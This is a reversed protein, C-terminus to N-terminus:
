RMSEETFRRLLNVAKKLEYKIGDAGRAIVVVFYVGDKVPQGNYTGDWGCEECDIEDLGWTYLEQGWRNYVSARMSIISKVDYVNLYDNIGDGNPSFANPVKISSEGISIKFPDFEYEYLIDPNSTNTYTVKLAVSFSGAKLFDYEVSEDYRTLFVEQNDDNTFTWMCVASYGEVDEANASFLVTLPAEGVYEEGASLINDEGERDTYEATPAPEVPEIETQGMISLPTFLLISVIIYLVRMSMKIVNNVIVYFVIFYYM